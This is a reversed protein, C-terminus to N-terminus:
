PGLINDSHTSNTLLKNSRGSFSFGCCPCYDQLGEDLMRDLFAQGAVEEDNSSHQFFTIKGVGLNPVINTHGGPNNQYAAYWYLKKEEEIGYSVLPASVQAEQNLDQIFTETTNNM